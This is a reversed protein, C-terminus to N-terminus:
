GWTQQMSTTGEKGRRAFGSHRRAYPGLSGCPLTEFMTEPTVSHAPPAADDPAVALSPDTDLPTISPESTVGLYLLKDLHVAIATLVVM